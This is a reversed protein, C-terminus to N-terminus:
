QPCALVSDLLEVLDEVFPLTLKDKNCSYAPKVSSTWSLLLSRVPFKGNPKLDQTGMSKGTECLTGTYGTPCSCTYGASTAGPLCRAGNQCPNSLCIETDVSLFFLKVAVIFAM